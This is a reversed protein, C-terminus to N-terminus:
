ASWVDIRPAFLQTSKDPIPDRSIATMVALETMAAGIGIGMTVIMFVTLVINRRLSRLGLHMYYGFM